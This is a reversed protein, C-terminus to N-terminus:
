RMIDCEDTIEDYRLIWALIDVLLVVFKPIVFKNFSITEKIKVYVSFICVFYVKRRIKTDVYVKNIDMSWKFTKPNAKWNFGYLELYINTFTPNIKFFERNM